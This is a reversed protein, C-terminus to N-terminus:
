KQEEETDCYLLRFCSQCPLIANKKLRVLDQALVEYFCSGCADRIVPAIPDAVHTKMEQYKALWEPTITSVISEQETLTNTTATVTTKLTQELIDIEERLQKIQQELAPADHLMFNNYGELEVLQELCIDELAGLSNKLSDIEHELATRQKPSIVDELQAEKTAIKALAAAVEAERLSVEHISKKHAVTMRTLLAENEAIAARHTQIESLAKSQTEGLSLIQKDLLGLQKFKQWLPTVQM